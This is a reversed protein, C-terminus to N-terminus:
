SLDLLDASSCSAVRRFRKTIAQQDATDAEVLADHEVIFWKAGQKAYREIGVVSQEELPITWGFRDTWAFMYSADYAVRHGGSDFKTGGSALILDKENILPKFTNACVFLDSPPMPRSFLWASRASIAMVLVAIVSLVAAVFRSRRAHKPDDISPVSHAGIGILLAVSPVAAVHYYFAWADGTTRGAVFLMVAAAFLWWLALQTAKPRWGRAFAVLVLVIGVLMFVYRIEQRVIGVLLGPESIFDKGIFHRENSVGLSLGTRAYTQHAFAAWALPIGAGVMGVAVVGPRLLGKVGRHIIVVAVIVVGVHLAPLKMLGALALGAATGFPYVWRRASPGNPALWTWASSVAVVVGLLMLSDSQTNSSVFVTLPNLAFMASACWGAQPGAIRIAFRAFVLLTLLGAVLPLIRIIRDHEGTARWLMGTTWSVLPFESEAEGTSRGRWGVRPSLPNMTERAFARAIALLDGERWAPQDLPRLAGIVRLAVGVATCLMWLYSIKLRHLIKM